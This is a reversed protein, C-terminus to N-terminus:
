RRNNWVYEKQKCYILKDPNTEDSLYKELVKEMSIHPINDELIEFVLNDLNCNVIYSYLRSDTYHPYLEINRKNYHVREYFDKLDEIGNVIDKGIYYMGNSVDTMRYILRRKM